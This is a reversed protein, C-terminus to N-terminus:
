RLKKVKVAFVKRIFEVGILKKVKLVFLGGMSCIVIDSLTASNSHPNPIPPPIKTTRKTITDVQDSM